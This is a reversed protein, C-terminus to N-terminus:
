LQLKRFKTPRVPSFEPLSFSPRRRFDIEHIGTLGCKLNACNETSSIRQRLDITSPPSKTPTSVLVQHFGLVSTPSSICHSAAKRNNKTTGTIFIHDCISVPSVHQNGSENLGRSRKARSKANSSKENDHLARSKELRRKRDRDRDLEKLKQEEEKRQREREKTKQLKRVHRRRLLKRHIPFSEISDDLEGERDIEYQSITFLSKM